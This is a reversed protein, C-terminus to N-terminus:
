FLGEIRGDKHVVIREAAPTKSLGPMTMIDGALAVVFGAGASPYVDRVALRFGTPAGLRTADDSLSYQTKAMCVPAEGLGFEVMQKMARDAKPAFDVGDAGYLERAITEIKDRIPRREDYLPRFSAKRQALIDLLTEALELGGAGGKEWVECLCVPVSLRECGSRIVELEADGDTLFRNLAVVPPVNFKAVNCIHRELNAFGREVAGPNPEALREKPVGGHLKLARVTAVVVAAEPALGAARCKINFFKEAGLDAGFGAETVVLDAVRLGLETAV